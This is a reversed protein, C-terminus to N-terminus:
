AVQPTLAPLQYSGTEASQIAARSIQEATSGRSSATAAFYIEMAARREEESYQSWFTEWLLHEHAVDVDFDLESAQQGMRHLTLIIGPSRWEHVAFLYSSQVQIQRRRISKWCEETVQVEAVRSKEFRAGIGRIALDFTHLVDALAGDKVNHYTIEILRGDLRLKLGYPHTERALVAGRSLLHRTLKERERRDRVWLDMDNVPAKRQVLPQFAGGCIFVEGEYQSGLIKEFVRAAHLRVRAKFFSLFM